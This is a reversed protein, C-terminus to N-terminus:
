PRRTEKRRARVADLLIVGAPLEGSSAKPRASSACSAFHPMYRKEVGAPQEGRRLVRSRWTEVGDLYAAVNGDEYEASDIPDPDVPLRKGNDTITWRVVRGCGWRCYTLGRRDRHPPNAATM